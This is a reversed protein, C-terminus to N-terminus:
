CQALEYINLSLFFSFFFFFFFLFFSLFFSFSLFLFSPLFSCLLFFLSFFPLFSPLFSICCHSFDRHFHIFLRRPGLCRSIDDACVSKIGQPVNCLSSQLPNTPTRSSVCLHNTPTRSSVCVCVCVCVCVFVFLVCVRARVQACACDCVCACACVCARACTCVRVCWARVCMCVCVCVHELSRPSAQASARQARKCESTPNQIRMFTHPISWVCGVLLRAANCPLLTTSAHCSPRKTTCASSRRAACERRFVGRKAAIIHRCWRCEYM